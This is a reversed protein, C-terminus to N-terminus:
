RHSGLNFIRESPIKMKPTERSLVMGRARAASPVAAPHRHILLSGIDKIALPILHTMM